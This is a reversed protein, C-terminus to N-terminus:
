GESAVETDDESLLAGIWAPEIGATRGALVLIGFVIWTLGTLIPGGQEFFLAGGFTLLPVLAYAKREGLGLLIALIIQGLFFPTVGALYVTGFAEQDFGDEIANGVGTVLGAVALIWAIAAAGEGARAQRVLIIFAPGALVLSLSYMWISAHDLVTVPDWYDPDQLVIAGYACWSVGVVLLYAGQVVRGPPWWPVASRV